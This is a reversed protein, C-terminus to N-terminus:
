QVKAVVLTIDDQQPVAGCFESVANRVAAIIQRASRGQSARVVQLLRSEGFVEGSPSEAEEVGDTVMLVVDGSQLPIPDSEVYEVESDLGLPQGRRSLTHRLRGDNGLVYGPSHGANAFALQRKGADLRVLLSTVFRGTGELDEALVQNSRTLVMGSDRRNFAVIRLYARTEAMILAPGMGHGSVDSVVLGVDGEPMMLFDFADGGTQVAPFSAGAIDFGAIQPAQQPFLQQQVQRALGFEKEALQLAQEAKRRATIDRVFAIQWRRGQLEMDSFAVEMMLERGDAARGKLEVLPPSAKAPQSLDTPSVSPVRAGEALLSEFQRGILAAADLSFVIEAAPNVFAIIGHADMMLIADPSSEWLRRYRLESARREARNRAERLERETVPLLRNLHGKILFDHAGAKMLAVATEEGIGGSVIIFPLDLGSEQLVRLAQAADFEPMQHDSFLIDWPQAILAERMATATEVRRSTVDYGGGRLLSAVVRADFESDEILLVRLPIRGTIGSSDM